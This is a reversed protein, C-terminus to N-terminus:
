FRQKCVEFEFTRLDSSIETVQCDDLSANIKELRSMKEYVQTYNESYDEEKMWSMDKTLLKTLNKNILRLVEIGDKFYEVWGNKTKQTNTTTMDKVNDVYDMFRVTLDNLVGM